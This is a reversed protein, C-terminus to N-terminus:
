VATRRIPHCGREAATKDIADCVSPQTRFKVIPSGSTKAVCGLTASTEAASPTSSGVSQPHSKLFRAQKRGVAGGVLQRYRGTHRRRLRAM